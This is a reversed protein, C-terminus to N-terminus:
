VSRDFELARTIRRDQVHAARGLVAAIEARVPRPPAPSAAVGVIDIGIVPGEQWAIEFEIRAGKRLEAYVAGAPAGAPVPLPRSAVGPAPAQELAWIRAATPADRFLNADSFVAPRAGGPSVLLAHASALWGARILRNATAAHAAGSPVLQAQLREDGDSEVTYGRLSANGLVMRDVRRQADASPVHRSASGSGGSSACGGALM